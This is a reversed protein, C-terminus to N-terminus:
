NIPHTDENTSEKLKRMEEERELEGSAYAEYTHKEDVHLSHTRGSKKAANKLYKEDGRERAENIKEPINENM